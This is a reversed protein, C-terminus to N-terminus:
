KVKRLGANRGEIFMCVCTVTQCNLQNLTECQAFPSSSIKLTGGVDEEVIWNTHTPACTKTNELKQIIHCVPAHQLGMCNFLTILTSIKRLFDVWWKREAKVDEKFRRATIWMKISLEIPEGAYVERISYCATGGESNQQFLDSVLWSLFMSNQKRNNSNPPYFALSKKM